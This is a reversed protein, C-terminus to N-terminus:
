LDVFFSDDAPGVFAKGHVLMVRDGSRDSSNFVGTTAATAAVMAGVAAVLAVYKKLM